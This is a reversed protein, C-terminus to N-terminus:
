EGATASGLQQQLQEIAARAEAATARDGKDESLTAGTEFDAIAGTLDGLDRRVYARNYYLVAFDPAIAIAAEFDALAADLRNQRYYLTGRFNRADVNEPALRIVASFDAIARDTEELHNFLLGRQMYAGANEPEARITADLAQMLDPDVHAIEVARVEASFPGPSVPLAALALLFLGVRIRHMAFEEISQEVPRAVPTKM